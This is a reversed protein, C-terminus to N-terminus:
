TKEKLVSCGNVLFKKRDKLPTNSIKGAWNNMYNIPQAKSTNYLM